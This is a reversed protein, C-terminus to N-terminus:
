AIPGHNHELPPYMIEGCTLCGVPSVAKAIEYEGYDTDEMSIIKGIRSKLLSINKKKPSLSNILRQILSKM